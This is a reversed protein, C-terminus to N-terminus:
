SAEVPCRVQLELDLLGALQPAYAQGAVTILQATADATLEVTGTSGHSGSRVGLADIFSPSLRESEGPSIDLRFNSSGPATAAGDPLTLTVDLSPSASLYVFSWAGSAPLYCASRVPDAVSEYTRAAPGSLALTFTPRAPTAPPTPSPTAQAACGVLLLAAVPLTWRPCRSM